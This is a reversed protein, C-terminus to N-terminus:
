RYKGEKLGQIYQEITIKQGGQLIVEDPKYTFSYLMYVVTAIVVISIAVLVFNGRRKKYHSWNALVIILLCIAYLTGVESIFSATYLIASMEVNNGYFSVSSYPTLDFLSVGLISLALTM